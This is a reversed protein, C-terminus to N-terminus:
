IYMYIFTYLDGFELYSRWTLGAKASPGLQRKGNDKWQSMADEDQFECRFAWSEGRFPQFIYSFPGTVGLKTPKPFDSTGVPHRTKHPTYLSHGQFPFMDGLFCVVTVSTVTVIYHPYLM